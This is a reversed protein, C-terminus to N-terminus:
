RAIPIMADLSFTEDGASFSLTGGYREVIARMSRTGFGHSSTDDKSTRPLGDAFERASSAPNYWNEVHISAMGARKRVVLSISRREPNGVQRVAEMANDLANGFFSYLDPAAMHSLAPGDAICTLTIGERECVLSKETLITDLADNGTKVQSDYVNVERAMDELVASDVAAGGDALHRIQHRLDHCKLNIADISERSMQYQREHEAMLREAAAKEVALQRNSLMEIEVLMTFLCVLAHFGRLLLLTAVPINTPLGEKLLVDFSIVAIIIAGVMVVLGRNDPVETREVHVNRIVTAYLVAYAIACTVVSISVHAHGGVMIGQTRLAIVASEALGSGLNQMAYGVTACFVAQWPTLEFCALLGGVTIALVIAYLLTEGVALAGMEAAVQRSQDVGGVASAHLMTILALCWAILAVLAARLWFHERRAANAALLGAAFLIEVFSTFPVLSWWILDLAFTM